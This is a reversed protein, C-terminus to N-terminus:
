RIEYLKFDNDNKLVMDLADIQLKQTAGIGKTEDQLEKLQGKVM